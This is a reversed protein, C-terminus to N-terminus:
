SYSTNQPDCIHPLMCIYVTRDLLKPVSKKFISSVHPLCQRKLNLILEMPM